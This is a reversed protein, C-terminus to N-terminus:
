SAPLRATLQQGLNVMPVEIFKYFTKAVLTALFLAIAVAPLSAVGTPPALITFIAWAIISHYLYNSYSTIGFYVFFNSGIRHKLIIAFFITSGALYLTAALKQQDLCLYLSGGSLLTVLALRLLALRAWGSEEALAIEIGLYFVPFYSLTLSGHGRFFWCGIEFLILISFIKHLHRRGFLAHQLAIFLYFKFEILLTWFVGSVAQVGIVDSVAMLSALYSPASFHPCNDILLDIIFIVSINVWYSPMVKFFRRIIFKTLSQTQVKSFILYGSLLFFLTVGGRGIDVILQNVTESQALRSGIHSCVVALIAVGRVTDLCPLRSSSSVPAPQGKVSEDM